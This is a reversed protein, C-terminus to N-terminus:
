QKCKVVGHRGLVQDWAVHDRGVRANFDGLVFLKNQRPVSSTARNLNENFEEKDQEAANLTPAYTSILTARRGQSLEIHM